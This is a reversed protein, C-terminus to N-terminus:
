GATLSPKINANLRFLNTPDYKNKIKVLRDYNGLFNRNVQQQTESFEDNIYFGDTFKEVKKWYARSWQIHPATEVGHKWFSGTVLNNNAYRHPFATADPLVRNIAEGSQQFFAMSGREPHPELNDVLADILGSTIDVTFGGKLYQSRGRPDDDDGSKQLEVYDIVELEDKLVKGANYLPRLANDAQDLPGSYTVDFYVVKGFGMPPAFIVPDYYLEAPAGVSHQGYFKLLDKVQSFPYHIRGGVVQPNMPHLQFEFMTVIGFNGGGGRVGWFLDANEEADAYRLQGDATVIEVSKLNDITLGFRRGLRGFGGGLTLGGVGTHSVTGATTGLGLPVTAEDLASLLSGGTILIRQTKPNVSTGQLPSLDIILGDDCTGKGSVSHGGCKVATLLQYHRAFNVSEIVDDNNICQAILAPRKDIVMNRVLRAIDYGDDEPLLLRGQLNRRFEEIAKREIAIPEGSGTIAPIEIPIQNDAAYGKWSPYSVAALSVMASKFFERRKM